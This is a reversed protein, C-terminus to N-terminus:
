AHSSEKGGSITKLTWALFGLWYVAVAWALPTLAFELERTKEHYLFIYALTAGLGPIVLLLKRTGPSIRWPKTKALFFEAALYAAVAIIAGVVIDRPFHAGVYARSLVAFFTLLALGVSLALSSRPRWHMFLLMASFSHGSPFSRSTLRQGLVCVNEGLAIVPRPADFLFKATQLVLNGILMALIFAAFDRPWLRSKGRLSQAICAFMVIWLGDALSTMTLFFTDLIGGKKPCNFFTFLETNFVFVFPLSALLAWFSLKYFPATM